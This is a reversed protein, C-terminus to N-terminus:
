AKRKKNSHSYDDGESAATMAKVKSASSSSSSSSTSTVKTGKKATVKAAAKREAYLNDALKQAFGCMTMTPNWSCGSAWLGAGTIYVNETGYPKFNYDTSCTEPPGARVVCSEHVMGSVRIINRPARWGAPTGKVPDADYWYTVDSSVGNAFVKEIIEVGVKDMEDWLVKDSEGISYNLLCNATKDKANPDLMTFNNDTNDVDLEGLLALVFVVDGNSMEMAEDSATAVVDPMYRLAQARHKKYDVSRLVSIQAHFTLGRQTGDTGALYIAGLEFENVGAPFKFKDFPVKATIATIVHAAFYRGVNPIVEKPFSNLLLTAAPMCGVALIVKTDKSLPLVGRSTQLATPVNNQQVIKEVVCDIVATVHEKQEYILQLYPGVVSFKEYTIMPDDRDAVALPAGLVRTAHKIAGKAVAATLKAELHKQMHSYVRLKVPIDPHNLHDAEKVCLLAEAEEYFKPTMMAKMEEPWGDLEALDDDPRPCWGSWLTSRGGFFPVMGHM